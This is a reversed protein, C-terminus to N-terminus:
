IYILHNQSKQRVTWLIVLYSCFSQWYCVQHAFRFEFDRAENSPKKAQSVEKKGRKGVGFPFSGRRFHRWEVGCNHRWSPVFHRRKVGDHYRRTASFNNSIYERGFWTWKVPFFFHRSARFHRQFFRNTPRPYQSPQSASELWIGLRRDLFFDRCSARDVETGRQVERYIETGRQVERNTVACIKSNVFCSTWKQFYRINLLNYFQLM